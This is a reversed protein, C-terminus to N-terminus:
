RAAYPKVSATYPHGKVDFGQKSEKGGERGRGERM